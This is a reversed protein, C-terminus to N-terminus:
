PRHSALPPDPLREAATIMADIASSIAETSTGYNLRTFRGYNSGFWTGDNMAVAARQGFFRSLLGGSPSISRDYLDPHRLADAEVRDYIEFCDILGIFSAEPVIFHLGSGSADLKRSILDINSVLHERLSTLWSFGGEYAGLATVTALIDPSLHLAKFRHKLKATLEGTSCVVISFHEGAINFTKSPAMCTACSVRYRRALLDFPIHKHGPLTLDAHIEDSLVTLGHNSAIEAVATLESETFVRGTPNHPSCFLLISTSDRSALKELLPLDLSFRRQETNYLMPWKRVKRGLNRIIHVFPQYAPMPLIIEDGQASELEVLTAISALMGPSTIVERPEVHWAHRKQAWHSFVSQVTSFDPYGLVGHDVQKALATIVSPPAKFDMDAVWFPAADSNGCISRIAETNWKVSLSGSRDVATTFDFM